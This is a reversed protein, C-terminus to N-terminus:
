RGSASSTYKQQNIVAITALHQTVFGPKEIQQQFVVALNEFITQFDMIWVSANERQTLRIPKQWCEAIEVEM